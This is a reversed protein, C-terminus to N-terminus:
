ICGNEIEFRILSMIEPQTAKRILEIGNKVCYNGSGIKHFTEFGNWYHLYDFFSINCADNDKYRFVIEVQKGYNLYYYKAVELNEVELNEIM